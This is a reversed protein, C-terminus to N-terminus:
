VRPGSTAVSPASSELSDHQHVLNSLLLSALDFAANTPDGEAMVTLEGTDHMRHIKRFFTKPVGFRRMTARTPTFEFFARLAILYKGDPLLNVESTMSFDLIRDCRPGLISKVQKYLAASIASALETFAPDNKKLYSIPAAIKSLM